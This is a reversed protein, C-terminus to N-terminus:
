VLIFLSLTVSVRPQLLAERGGGSFGLAAM